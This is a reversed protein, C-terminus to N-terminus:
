YTFDLRTGISQILGDGVFKNGVLAGNTTVFNSPGANSVYSFVYNVQFRVNPNLFWNLGLTGNQNRGGNIPGANLTLYDYRCGIQWAGYKGARFDANNKPIVRNFVGSVRNYDRYEGTLFYWGEVYTGYMFPNGLSKTSTQFPKAGQFWSMTYETRLFLPGIQVALEPDILLQDDAYFNGTDAYNPDITSPANRLDGRSRVRVNTGNSAPNLNNNFMRYETGFGTHVMYKGKTEEDYYPTWIARAGYSFDNGYNFPYNGDFYNTKYVGMQLGANKDPTNNFFSVGPTYGNNNPGSFADMIPAREMFNLFRASEIHEMSFWDQQSGVRINGLVPVDKFTMFITTPWIANNTNGSQIGSGGNATTSQLGNMPNAPNNTGNIGPSNNQLAFAFDFESVYDIYKYMSGEARWRLRRFSVADEYAYNNPARVNSSAPGFGDYDLQVVGGTHFKFNGDNSTFFLGDNGFNGWATKPGNIKKTLDAIEKELDRIKKDQNFDESSPMSPSTANLRRIYKQVLSGLRKEEDTEEAVEIEPPPPVLSILPDSAEDIPLNRATRLEYNDQELKELRQRLENIADNQDEAALPRMSVVDTAALIGFLLCIKLVTVFCRPPVRFRSTWTLNMIRGHDVQLM